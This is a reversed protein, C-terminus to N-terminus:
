AHRALKFAFADIGHRNVTVLGLLIAHLREIGELLALDFNKDGRIHGRAAEVDNLQGADDVIVQGVTRFVIHVADATGAPGASGAIGDGQHCRGFFPQQEVDFLEGLVLDAAHRKFTKHRMRAAMNRM